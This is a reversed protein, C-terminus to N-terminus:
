KWQPPHVVFDPHTEVVVRAEKKNRQGAVDVAEVSLPHPGDTLPMTEQYHGKEDVATFHGNIRVRAGPATDGAVVVTPTRVIASPWAVKLLLSDPIPTPADPPEGPRIRAYQSTRLVVERGRAALVVEGRRNAVAAGGAGVTATFTAGHTRAVGSQKKPDGLELEFVRGPDDRIDATAMGSDIALRALERRLEDVRVATGEYVRVSSGDAGRLEATGHEDTRLRDSPAVREGVRVPRWPGGGSSIEVGRDAAGVTLLEVTAHQLAESQRERRAILFYYSLGIAAGVVLLLSLLRGGSKM